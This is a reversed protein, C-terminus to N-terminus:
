GSRRRRLTAGLGILLALLGGPPTARQDCACGTGGGGGGGPGSSEGDDCIGDHDLDPGDQAPDPPGFTLACDDCTDGDADGCITRDDPNPDDVNAVSDGDRDPDSGDCIGDRDQDDGDRAPDAGTGGTCDDCGDADEDACVLPDRPALDIDNAVGDGDMDEDICDPIIDHDLDAEDPLLEGDCDNDFGDCIETAGPTVASNFDDCDGSCGDVGDHDLDLPRLRPNTDDCDGTCVSYGDLDNDREDVPDAGDCDDDLNNCRETAGPHRQDDHDDCDNDCTSFGDGDLDDPYLLRDGDDCDGDCTSWGDGDSDIENAPVVGDCDDDEGNCLEAAGPRIFAEFDNCDGDCSSLGDGDRDQPSRTADNDDCDGACAPFGDGDVDAESPLLVGDCNEDRGDCTEVADPNIQDDGDECDGDCVRFGDGDEDACSTFVLRVNLDGHLPQLDQGRLGVWSHGDVPGFGDYPLSGNSVTTAQVWYTEGAHVPISPLVLDQWGDASGHFVGGNFLSTGPAGQDDAYLVLTVSGTFGIGFQRIAELTGDETIDFRVRGVVGGSDTFVREGALEDYALQGGLRSIAVVQAGMPDGADSIGRIRVGSDSGDNRRTNPTTAETIERVLSTGPYPDGADGDNTNRQLNRRGDAQLLKVGPNTEDLNVTNTPRGADLRDNDVKWVLMGDGMLWPEVSRSRNEVLLLESVHLPDLWLRLMRGGAGIPRLTTASPGGPVDIPEEWGLVMREWAAMYAPREERAYNGSAMLDWTGLGASSQDADYMDPLGFLHGFEHAFTGMPHMDGLNIGFLGLGNQENVLFYRNVDVGDLIMPVDTWYMHPWFLNLSGDGWGEVVLIVADVSGDGDGDYDSFDVVDDVAMAADHLLGGANRPYSGLGSMGAAYYGYSNPMEVWDQVDGPGGELVFRGNSLEAYYDALSQQYQPPLGQDTPDLQDAFLLDAFQLRDYTAPPSGNPPGGPFRVLLVLPRTLRDPVPLPAGLRGDPLVRREVTPQLPPLRVEPAPMTLHTEVGLARPDDRGVLAPSPVLRGQDLVAYSWTTGGAGSWGVVTYGRADELRPTEACGSVFRVHVPTGDPQQLDLWGPPGPVALAPTSAFLALALASRAHM